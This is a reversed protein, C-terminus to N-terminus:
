DFDISVGDKGKPAYKMLLWVYFCLSTVQVVALDMWGVNMLIVSLVVLLFPMVFVYFKPSRSMSYTWGIFATTAVDATFKFPLYESVCSLVLTTLSILQLGFIVNHLTFM